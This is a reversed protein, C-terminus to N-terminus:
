LEELITIFEGMDMNPRMAKALAIVGDMMGQRYGYVYGTSCEGQIVRDCYAKAIETIIEDETM